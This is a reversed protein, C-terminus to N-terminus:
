ISRMMKILKEADRHRLGKAVLIEDSNYIFSIVYDSGWKFIKKGTLNELSIYSSKDQKLRLDRIKEIIYKSSIRFFFLKKKILLQESEKNVTIEVTGFFNWILRLICFSFLTFYITHWM